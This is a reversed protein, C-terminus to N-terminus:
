SLNRILRAARHECVEGRVLLRDDSNDCAHKKAERVRAAKNNKSDSLYMVEYVNDYFRPPKCKVGNVVVFYRSQSVSRFLM